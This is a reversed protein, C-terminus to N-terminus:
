TEYYGGACAVMRFRDCYVRLICRSLPGMDYGELIELCIYRDLADYAKNLDLFIM